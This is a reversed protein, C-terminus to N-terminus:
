KESKTFLAIESGQKKMIYVQQMISLIGNWAWYIVLGVPFNAAIFVMVIPMWTFLTKQIPDPPAPNLKTQLLFTLGFLIHFVGIMLIQPPEWNILGFGNFLSIPDPASLDKIWGIFPAHRMELAVLLVNYLAFFVPIQILVPLCGSLPKLEEKKYLSQMELAMKQRDDGYLERLKTIEPQVKRMKAMQVYSRNVVPFFVVKILITLLLIAVGFNGSFSFLLDLIYFLPKALFYFWGWDIILDLRNLTNNDSYNQIIKVEKAGIFAQSISSVSEGSSAGTLDGIYGIRYYNDFADSSTKFIARKTDKDLSTIATAWYKDRIGVWGDKFESRFDNEEIDDYDVEELQDDFYGTPGEHLLGLAQVDPAEKRSLQQFPFVTISGPSNNIIIQEIKFIYNEDISIKQKFTLGNQNNWSIIVPTDPTLTQGEELVWLTDTGPLDYRINKPAKWGSEVWYANESDKPNFFQVFDSNERTSTKFDKLFIEDIKAGCLNISGTIKNSQILVREEQCPESYNQVDEPSVSLQVNDQQEIIENNTIERQEPPFILQWGFLVAMALVIAFLYRSMDNM